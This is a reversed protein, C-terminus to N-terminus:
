NIKLLEKIYREVNYSSNTVNEVAIIDYPSSMRINLFIAAVKGCVHRLCLELRDLM